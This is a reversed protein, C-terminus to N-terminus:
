DDADEEDYARKADSRLDLTSPAHATIARRVKVLDMTDGRDLSIREGAPDTWELRLLQDGRVTRQLLSPSGVDSWPASRVQGHIDTVAIGERTTVVRPVKWARRRATVLATAAVGVVVISAGVAVRLLAPGLLTVSFSLPVTMLAPIVSFIRPKQGEM